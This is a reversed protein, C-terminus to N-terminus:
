FDYSSSIYMKIWAAPIEKYLGEVRYGKNLGYCREAQHLAGDMTDDFFIDFAHKRKGNSLYSYEVKYNTPM